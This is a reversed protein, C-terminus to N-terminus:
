LVGALDLLAHACICCALCVVVHHLVSGVTHQPKTAVGPVLLLAVVMRGDKEVVLHAGITWGDHLLTVLRADSLATDANAIDVYHMLPANKM